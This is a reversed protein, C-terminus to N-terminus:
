NQVQEAPRVEPPQEPNATECNRLALVILVLLVFIVIPTGCGRPEPRPKTLSKEFYIEWYLRDADKKRTASVSINCNGCHGMQEDKKELYHLLIPCSCRPCLVKM